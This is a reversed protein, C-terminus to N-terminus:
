INWRGFGKDLAKTKTQPSTYKEPLRFQEKEHDPFVPQKFGRSLYVPTQM